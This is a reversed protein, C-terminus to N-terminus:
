NEARRVCLARGQAGELDVKYSKGDIFKFGRVFSSGEKEEKESSLVWPHTLMLERRINYQGGGKPDYLKKLEEITPLRWDQYENLTLSKCYSEAGNWDIPRGNDKTTWMLNTQPDIFGTMDVIKIDDPSSDPMLWQYAIVMLGLLGVLLAGYVIIRKRKSLVNSEDTKTRGLLEDIEEAISAFLDHRKRLRELLTRADDGNEPDSLSRKLDVVLASQEEYSLQTSTTEIKETLNGLYSIPTKPPPPLPDPLPEPPPLNMLARALRFAANRDQKRYDVFQIQSLAPPMLNTSIEESVVVPLIPKGLADAYEYERKCAKSNLAEPNLIFIFVDCDRVTALIKDWWVQGGSLEQDFWVTHGLAQIDDGLAMAIAESEHNYSIFINAM